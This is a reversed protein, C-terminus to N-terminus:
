RLTSLGKSAARSFAAPSAPSFMEAKERFRRRSATPRGGSAGITEASRFGRESRLLAAHGVDCFEVDAGM